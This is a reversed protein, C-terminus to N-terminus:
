FRSSPEHHIQPTHAPAFFRTDRHKFVPILAMGVLFGGVHAWFAVGGGEAGATFWGSFLQLGFWLVLLIWSPLHIVRSAMGLPVLTMVRAHPYLLLYAGLVGSVAGSAGLVPVMSNPDTLTHAAAAGIGCLLYFIVFRFRGMAEEVNNGFIWLYLMNGILHMFGGHLFMSTFVTAYVAASTPHVVHGPVMAYQAIFQDLTGTAGALLERAFVIVNLVILTVTVVPFSRTPNDDRLPIM